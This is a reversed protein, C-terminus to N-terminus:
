LGAAAEGSTGHDRDGTGSHAAEDTILGGLPRRTSRAPPSGHRPAGIRGFFLLGRPSGSLDSLVDNLRRAQRRYREEQTFATGQRGYFAFCLPALSPQLVLGLRTASLWFRQLAQGASLLTAPDQPGDLDLAPASISFHASCALGPLYDLQLRVPLTASPLRNMRELRRWDRFGWRMIMLTGADLGAAKAPIGTPSQDREWDIMERHVEFAEPIRLRIDTALGNLRAARWKDKLSEHWQIKFDPGLAAALSDKQHATLAGRKYSRRDVSRGAICAALPDEEIGTGKPLEVEIIYRDGDRGKYDWWLLRSFSAAAIRMTELLMGASLLTPQANNYEYVNSASADAITVTVSDDGTIAFRWPQSNDGSPAWRALDLIQEIESAAPGQSDEPAANLAAAIKREVVRLKLRQLPNANGFPLRSSVFKGRYVDFQHYVPAPRVRGRGLLIKLAEGGVVGACLQVAAASSPGRKEALNVRSVDVLYNRHLAKPALGLLFSAYQRVPPLGELRFYEEFSMHGPLFILYCTGFGIPGATIAPIGLERCRRFVKARMGPLFFDFGDVFLDAGALFADISDDTVGQEFLGLELEPNIDRAQEAMVKVKSRGISSMSAGAQRNFNALEFDDLDAINFRGIGMRALTLLHVGGVGGMGAIAVRKRRLVQQESETVWGINRDFAEDYDFGGGAMDIKKKRHRFGRGRAALLSQFM